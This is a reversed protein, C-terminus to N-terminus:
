SGPRSGYGVVPQKSEAVATSNLATELAEFDLHQTLDEERRECKADRTGYNRHRDRRVQQIPM